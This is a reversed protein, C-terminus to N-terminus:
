ANVKQVQFRHNMCFKRKWSSSCVVIKKGVNLINALQINYLVHNSTYECTMTSDKKRILYLAFYNMLEEPLGIQKVVM